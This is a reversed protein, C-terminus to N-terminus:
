KGMPYCGQLKIVQVSNDRVGVPTSTSFVEVQISKSGAHVTTTESQIPIGRIEQPLVTTGNGPGCIRERSVSSQQNAVSRSIRWQQATKERCCCTADNQASESKCLESTEGSHPRRCPFSRMTYRSHAHGLWWFDFHNVFSPGSIYYTSTPRTISFKTSWTGIAIACFKFRNLSRVLIAQM